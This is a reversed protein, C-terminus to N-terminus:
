STLSDVGFMDASSTAVFIKAFTQINRYLRAYKHSITDAMEKRNGATCVVSLCIINLLSVLRFFELICQVICFM